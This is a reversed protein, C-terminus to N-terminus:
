GPPRSFSHIGSFWLSIDRSRISVLEHHHHSSPSVAMVPLSEEEQQQQQQRREQQAVKRSDANMTPKLGLYEMTFIRLILNWRQM